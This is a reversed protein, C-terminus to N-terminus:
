RRRRTAAAAAGVLARLIRRQAPQRRYLLEPHWQVGLVFAHRDSEIGEIVGDGARANVTLGAPVDRVAQHHTSNVGVVIPRSARRGRVIRGLLTDPSITVRHSTRDKRNKQQHDRSGPREVLIDQFLTGGLAVNILQMGGCIGLVPLDRRLAERLLMLEFRSREPKVPGLYPQPKDGFFEPPVDFNGGALLLGDVRDAMARVLRRNETVPLVVPLASQDLLGQLYRDWLYLIKEDATRSRLRRGGHTDPSVGILPTGPPNGSM